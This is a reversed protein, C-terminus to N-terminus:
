ARFHFITENPETQALFIPLKGKAYYNFSLLMQGRKINNPMVDDGQFKLQGFPGVLM